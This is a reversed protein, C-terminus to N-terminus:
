RGMFKQKQNAYYSIKNENLEIARDIYWIASDPQGLKWFIEAVTDYMASRRNPIQEIDLARQGAALAEDLDRGLEGMRWAYGNLLTTNDSFREVAIKYARVEDDVRGGIAYFNILDRLGYYSEESDTDMEILNWLATDDGEILKQSAIFFRAELSGQMSINKGTLAETYYEM